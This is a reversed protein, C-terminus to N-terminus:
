VIRDKWEPWTDGPCATANGVAERHGYVAEISLQAQLWDVLWAAAAIQEDTPYINTFDGKLAIGVSYNNGGAAHYSITDLYNTQEIAGDAGILYHYAIGPWGRSSVHYAAIQEATRSDPSVTHHIVITTIDALNRAEYTKTPHVPLTAVVDM